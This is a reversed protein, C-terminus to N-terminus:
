VLGEEGGQSVLHVPEGSAVVSRNIADMVQVVGLGFRGDSVPRSGTAVHGLFADVQNRLPEGLQIRPSVIGGDRMVLSAAFDPADADDGVAVGKEFIRIPETADLDDFLIREDRAVVVLERVKHPDLWSVHVHAVTGDEYGMTAFGVDERENGLLRAGTASVWAPTTGLLHNFVAIDHPALDWLANVDTRIPGLNTRRAYLYRVPGSEGSAVRSTLYAIADNYLFTHGVMLVLGKREALDSLRLSAAPDLTLPKEVLVHYGAELLPATVEFHTTAPTAVVAASAGVESLADVTPVVRVSPFRERVAKRRADSADCAVVRDPGLAEVVVRVYNIGWYGCGVVGVVAPFTM